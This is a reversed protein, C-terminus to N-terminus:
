APGTSYRPRFLPRLALRLRYLERSPLRLEAPADHVTRVCTRMDPRMVGTLRRVPLRRSGNGAKSLAPGDLGASMQSAARRMPTTTSDMNVAAVAGICWVKGMFTSSVTDSIEAATAGPHVMPSRAGTASRPQRPKHAASGTWSRRGGLSTPTPPRRIRPRRFRPGSTSWRLYHPTGKPAPLFRVEHRPLRRGVKAYVDTSPQPYSIAAAGCALCDPVKSAPPHKTLSPSRVRL